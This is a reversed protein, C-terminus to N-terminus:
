QEGHEGEFCYGVGYVTRIYAPHGIKKRLQKVMTDITRTDGDYDFGWIQDLIQERTLVRGENRCFFELLEYEKPTADVRKGEVLVRKGDLELTLAGCSLTETDPEGAARKLVAEIHAKVVALSYPKTIYDDAGHAFGQIQDEVTEKASLVIVPVNSRLRIDKLVELGGAFPLMLDLLVLDIEEEHQRFCRLGALGDGAAFTGYGNLRLFDCMTQLLKKEDEIVLITYM